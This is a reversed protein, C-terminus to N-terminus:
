RRTFELWAHDAIRTGTGYKWLRKELAALVTMVAPRKELVGFMESPPLLIGLGRKHTLRFEPAFARVMEFVTPYYVTMEGFQATGGWRRSARGPSLRVLHWATEWLCFRTMVAVCVVGRSKVRPVLWEVLPRADELANLAGFNSLVLRFPGHFADPLDRLDFEGISADQHGRLKERAIHLMKPSADLATVKVGHEALWLADTGTGCGLDLAAEGASIHISMREYQRERLTRAIPRASFEADYEAALPDFAMANGGIM